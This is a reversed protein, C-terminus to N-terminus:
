YIWSFLFFFLFAFSPVLLQSADCDGRGGLEIMLLEKHGVEEEEECAGKINVSSITAEPAIRTGPREKGIQSIPGDRPASISPTEHSISVAAM